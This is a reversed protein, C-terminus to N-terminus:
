FTFRAALQPSRATGTGIPSTNSISTIRGFTALSSFNVNPKGLQPHNFVNFIELRFMLNSRERIRSGEKETESPSKSLFLPTPGPERRPTEDKARQYSDM